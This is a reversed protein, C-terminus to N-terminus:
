YITKCAGPVRVRVHYICYLEVVVIYRWLNRQYKDYVSTSAHNCWIQVVKRWPTHSNCATDWYNVFLGWVYTTGLINYFREIHKNGTSLVLNSNSAVSRVLMEGDVTAWQLRICQPSLVMVHVVSNSHQALVALDLHIKVVVHYTDSWKTKLILSCISYM